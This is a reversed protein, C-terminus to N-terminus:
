DLLEYIPQPKSLGKLRVRGIRRYRLDTSAILAQTAETFLVQFKSAVGCLRAAINVTNGIVTYDKFVDTGLSGVFVPGSAIGIGVGAWDDKAIVGYDGGFAPPRACRM